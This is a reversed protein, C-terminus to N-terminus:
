VEDRMVVSGSGETVKKMSAGSSIKQVTDKVIMKDTEFRIIQSPSVLVTEGILGGVEYQLVSQSDVDFTIDKVSGLGHGSQTEVSMKKLQKLTLRMFFLGFSSLEM